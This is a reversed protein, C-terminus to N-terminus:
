ATLEPLITGLPNNITDEDGALVDAFYEVAAKATDVPDVGFIGCIKVYIKVFKLAFSVVKLTPGVLGAAKKIEDGNEEIFATFEDIIEEATKENAVEETEGEAFAVTAVSFIMMLALFLAIIKKM